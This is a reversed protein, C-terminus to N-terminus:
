KRIEQNRGYEHNKVIRITGKCSRCISRQVRQQVAKTIRERTGVVQQCQECCLHYRANPTMFNAPVTLTARAPIELQRCLQRFEKGHGSIQQYAELYYHIFEHRIVQLLLHEHHVLNAQFCFSRKKEPYSVRYQGLTRTFRSSIEIPLHAAKTGFQQDLRQLEALIQNQM